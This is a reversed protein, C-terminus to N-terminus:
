AEFTTQCLDVSKSKVRTGNAKTVVKMCDIGDPRTFCTRYERREGGDFSLYEQRDVIRTVRSMRMDKQVERYEARSVCSQTDPAASAASIGHVGFFALSTALVTVLKTVNSSM